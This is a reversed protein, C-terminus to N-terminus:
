KYSNLNKREIYSLEKEIAQYKVSPVSQERVIKKRISTRKNMSVYEDLIHPTIFIILERTTESKDKHRFPFGLFPIEGLVPVSTKDYTIETRLLGGLVITDGDNVRLISKSGREEPDKFNPFDISTKAQIVRPEIAMTIERTQINAQPTVKLFVGTEAREAEGTSATTIGGSTSLEAENESITEDTKVSIEATHNNLTLIRPRALSKTDSQSKLFQMVINLGALSLTGGTLSKTFSTDSMLKTNNNFPYSHNRISGTIRIPDDDISGFKVGLQKSTNASIDLMETEILILPIRVDLRTITEEIQPFFSPIDSVIISNTRIDETISGEDSLVAEIAKIIGYNDASLATSAGSTSRSLTTNLKSSPVTAFKLPYVRTMMLQPLIEKEKIIFINSIPDIVYSLNHAALIQELANEVPVNDLYIDVTKDATASSVVFNLGSQQSFIKMVNNLKANSFDMSIRKETDSYLIDGLHDIDIAHSLPVASIMLILLTAIQISCKKHNM